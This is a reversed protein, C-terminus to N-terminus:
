KSLHSLHPSFLADHCDDEGFVQAGSVVLGEEVHGTVMHQRTGNPLHRDAVVHRGMAKWFVPPAVREWAVVEEDM